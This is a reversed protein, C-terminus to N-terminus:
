NRALAAAEIRSGKAKWGHSLTKVASVVRGDRVNGSKNRLGKAVVVVDNGSVIQIHHGGPLPRRPVINRVLELVVQLVRPLQAAIEGNRSPHAVRQQLHGILAVSLFDLRIHVEVCPKCCSCGSCQCALSNLGWEGEYSRAFGIM